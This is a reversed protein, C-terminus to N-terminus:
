KTCSLLNSQMDLLDGCLNTCPGKVDTACLLVSLPNEHPAVTPPPQTLPKVLVPLPVAPPIRNVVVSNKLPLVTEVKPAKLTTSPSQEAMKLLQVWFNFADERYANVLSSSMKDRHDESTIHTIFLPASPVPKDCYFCHHIKLFLRSTVELLLSVGCRDFLSLLYEAHASPEGELKGSDSCSKLLAFPDVACEVIATEAFLLDLRETTRKMKTEPKLEKKGKKNTKLIPLPIPKEFAKGTNESIFVDIKKVIRNRKEHIEANREEARKRAEEAREKNKKEIGKERFFKKKEEKDEKRKEELLRAEERDKI